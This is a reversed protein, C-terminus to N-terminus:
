PVFKVDIEVQNTKNEPDKSFKQPVGEKILYGQNGGLSKLRSREASIVMQANLAEHRLQNMKGKVARIKNRYLLVFAKGEEISTVDGELIRMQSKLTALELSMETNQQQLADVKEKFQVFDQSDQTTKTGMLDRLSQIESQFRTNETHAETLMYETQTLLNKTAQLEQQTSDLQRSVGALTVESTHYRHAYERSVQAQKQSAALLLQNSRQVNRYNSYEEKLVAASLVIMMVLLFIGVTSQIKRWTTLQIIKKQIRERLPTIVDGLPEIFELGYFTQNKTFRKKASWVLRGEKPLFEEEQTQLPDFQAPEFSFVSLRDPLGHAETELLLGSTSINRVIGRGKIQTDRINWFVPFNEKIRLNKRSETLM